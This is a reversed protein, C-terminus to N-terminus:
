AIISDKGYDDDEIEITFYSELQDDNIYDITQQASQHQQQQQMPKDCDLAYDVDDVTVEDIDEAIFEYEQNDDIYQIVHEIDHAPQDAVTSFSFFISHNREFM